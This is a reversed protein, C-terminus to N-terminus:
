EEEERREQERQTLHHTWSFESRKEVRSKTEGRKRSLEGCDVRRETKEQSKKVTASESPNIALFTNWNQGEAALIADEGAAASLQSLSSSLLLM